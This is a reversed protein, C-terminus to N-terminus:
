KERGQQRKLLGPPPIGPPLDEATLGEGAAIAAMGHMYAAAAGAEFVPMNQAVLAGVIGALCDGSGATALWPPANTNIVARGDPSAVVTDAGKYVVVANARLAAQRARDVKSLTKDAHLDPFLRSFEGEHPTLVLRPPGDGFLGFLSQPDDSFASIGDADLVLPRGCTALSSVFARAKDGVGFGPGLVFGSLREDALLAHLDADNDVKRLMIATLHNAVEPMASAPSLITVLGAGTRLGASAALRAAGSQSAGGSFVALHGRKYKHSASGIAPLDSSWLAPDNVWLDEAHAEILRHPIGIDVVMVKGCLELGPLLFHGPKPAAFTISHAAKMAVGEVAGTRGSVGSPLDASIVPNKAERVKQIARAVSGVVPRDLGAGFLADIVVQGRGPELDELDLIAGPWDSRARAADGTLADPDISSYLRVTMGSSCLIRAAVYGDGGNNGPGCLVLVEDTAPYHEFACAAIAAGAIVMLNYGDIGSQIAAHDVCTMARPSLIMEKASM